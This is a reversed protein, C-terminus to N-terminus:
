RALSAMLLRGGAARAAARWDGEGIDTGRLLGSASPRVVGACASHVEAM